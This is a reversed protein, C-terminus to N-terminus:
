GGGSTARRFERGLFGSPLTQRLGCQLRAESSYQRRFSTGAPVPMPSRAIRGAGARVTLHTQTMAAGLGSPWSAALLSRLRSRSSFSPGASANPRRVCFAACFVPPKKRGASYFRGGHEASDLRPRSLASETGPDACRGAKVAGARPPVSSGRDPRFFAQPATSCM